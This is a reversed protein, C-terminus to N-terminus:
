GDRESCPWFSGYVSTYSGQALEKARLLARALLYRQEALHKAIKISTM